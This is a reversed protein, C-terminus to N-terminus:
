RSAGMGTNAFLATMCGVGMVGTHEPAKLEGTHLNSPEVWESLDDDDDSDDTENDEAGDDDTRRRLLIPADPVPASENLEGIVSEYVSMNNVVIEGIRGDNDLLIRRCYARWSHINTYAFSRRRGRGVAGGSWTYVVVTYRGGPLLALSNTRYATGVEFPEERLTLVPFSYSSITTM